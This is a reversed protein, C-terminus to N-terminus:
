NWKNIVEKTKNISEMINGRSIVAFEPDYYESVLNYLQPMNLTQIDRLTYNQVKINTVEFIFNRILSSLLQYAKRNSIKQNNFDEYLNNIKILYNKKIANIDKKPPIIVQEEIKPVKKERMRFFIIILIIILLIILLLSYSFMGQIETTVQM